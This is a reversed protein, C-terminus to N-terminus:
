VERQEGGQELVRNYIEEVWAARHADYDAQLAALKEQSSAEVEKIKAQAQELALAKLKDITEDTNKAAIAMIEQRKQDIISHLNRKSAEAQETIATAKNEIQILEEIISEM